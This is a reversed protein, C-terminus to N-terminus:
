KDVLGLVMNFADNTATKQAQAQGAGYSSTISAFRPDNPNAKVRDFVAGSANCWAACVTDSLLAQKADCVANTNTVHGAHMMTGPHHPVGPLNWSKPLDHSILEFSAALREIDHHDIVPVQFMKSLKRLETGIDSPFFALDYEVGFMLHKSRRSYVARYLEIQTALSRRCMSVWEHETSNLLSPQFMKAQSCLMGAPNRHSFLVVNVLHADVLAKLVLPDHLKILASINHDRCLQVHSVNHPSGGGLFFTMLNPDQNFMVLRALNYLATSGSRPLGAVVVITGLRMRNSMGDADTFSISELLPAQQDTQCTEFYLEHGVFVVILLGLLTSLSRRSLGCPKPAKANPIAEPVVSDPVM